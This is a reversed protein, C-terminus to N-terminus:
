HLCTCSWLMIHKIQAGCTQLFSEYVVDIHFYITFFSTLAIGLVILMSTCFGGLGLFINVDKLNHKARVHLWLTSILLTTHLFIHFTESTTSFTNIKGNYVTNLSWRCILSIPSNYKEELKLLGLNCLSVYVVRTLELRHHFAV